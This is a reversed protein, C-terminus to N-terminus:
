SATSLIRAIDINKGIPDVPILISRAYDKTIPNKEILDIEPGNELLAGDADAVLRVLPRAPDEQPRLVVALERTDLRVLTGVPFIGIMQVFAEVLKPDFVTGSASRVEAVARSPELAQQYPRHTTMADYSDAVCGLRGFFSAEKGAPLAPYGAEGRDFRVHHELVISKAISSGNMREVLKFGETPHRRVLEWEIPSLERPKRYLSEPWSVKGIDHLFAGFGVERLVEQDLGLSHGLALALIGVNVSHNFLYEDYSKLLTLGLIAYKDKFVADTLDEVMQRVESAQPYEGMRVKRMIARAAGVANNYVVVVQRRDMGGKSADEESPKLSTAMLHRAGKLSLCRPAGGQEALAEPDMALVELLSRVDDMNAGRLFTVTGVDRKRMRDLLANVQDHPGMWPIGEVVVLSDETVGVQSSEQEGLLTGLAQLINQQFKVVAPHTASYLSLTKVAGNLHRVLIELNGWRAPDM